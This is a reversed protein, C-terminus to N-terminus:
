RITKVSGRNIQSQLYDYDRLRITNFADIRENLAKNRSQLDQVQMNLTIVKDTLERVQVQQSRISDMSSDTIVGTILMWVWSMILLVMLFITSFRWVDVKLTNMVSM